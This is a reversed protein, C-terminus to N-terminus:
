FLLAGPAVPSGFRRGALNAWHRCRYASCLAAPLTEAGQRSLFNRTFSPVIRGGVVAVLMVLVYIGLRNGMAASDAYGLYEVHVLVNGMLFIMFLLLVPLNRWTGASILERAIAACLVLLLSLDGAAALWPGIPESLIFAARGLLWLGALLALRPGSSPLRGTWNPIATLIYGTAAALCFGFIMEHQHWNLADIEPPLTPMGLFYAVWVPMALAAWIGALLFFPRFAFQLVPPGRAAKRKLGSIVEHTKKPDITPTRM